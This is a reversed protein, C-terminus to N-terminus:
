VAGKKNTQDNKIICVRDGYYDNSYNCHAQPKNRRIIISKIFKM